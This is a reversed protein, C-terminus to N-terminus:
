CGRQLSIELVSMVGIKKKIDEFIDRALPKIFIDALQDKSSCHVMRIEGEEIKERIFHYRIKIHKIRKHNVINLAIAIASTSDCVLKIPGEELLKQDDLIGRIWM